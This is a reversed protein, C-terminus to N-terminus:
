PELIVVGDKETTVKLRFPKTLIKLSTEFDTSDLSGSFRFTGEADFRIDKSFKEELSEIVIQIPVNDFVLKEGAKSILRNSNPWDGFITKEASMIVYDDASLIQDAVQVKGEQCQVVLANKKEWVSFKTGLVKVDGQKTQVTFTAGTEVEFFCEGELLTTRDFNWLFSNYNLRSGQALLVSSGDPLVYEASYEEAKLETKGLFHIVFPIALILVLTAAAYYRTYSNKREVGIQAKRRITRDMVSQKAVAFANESFPVKYQSLREEAKEFENM